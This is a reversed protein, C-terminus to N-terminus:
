KVIFSTDDIFQYEKKNKSDFFIQTLFDGDFSMTTKKGHYGCRSKNSHIFSLDGDQIYFNIDSLVTKKFKLNIENFNYTSVDTDAIKYHIGDVLLDEDMELSEIFEYSSSYLNLVSGKTITLSCPTYITAVPDNHCKLFSIICLLLAVRHFLHNRIIAM